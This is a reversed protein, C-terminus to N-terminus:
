KKKKKNKVAKIKPKSKKLKKDLEKRMSTESEVLEEQIKKIENKINIMRGVNSEQIMLKGCEPCKYDFELADDSAVRICEDPCIFYVVKGELKLQQKLEDLRKLNV